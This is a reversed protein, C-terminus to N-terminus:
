LNQSNQIKNQSQTFDTNSNFLYSELLFMFAEEPDSIHSFIKAAMKALVNGFGDFSVKKGTKASVELFIM